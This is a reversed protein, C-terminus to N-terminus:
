CIHYSMHVCVCTVFTFSMLFVFLVVADMKYANEKACMSLRCLAPRGAERRDAAARPAEVRERAEAEEGGM